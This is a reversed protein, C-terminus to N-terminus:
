DVECTTFRTLEDALEAGALADPVLAMVIQFIDNASFKGPKTAAKLRKDLAERCLDAVHERAKDEDDFRKGDATEFVTLRRIM